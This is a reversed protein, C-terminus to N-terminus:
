SIHSDSHFLANNVIANFLPASTKMSTNLGSSSMQINVTVYILLFMILQLFHLWFKNNFSVITEYQQYNRVNVKWVTTYPRIQPTTPDKIVTKDHM